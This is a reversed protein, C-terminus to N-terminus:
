RLEGETLRVVPLNFKRLLWADRAADSGERNRHWYSGDAEFALHYPHPLYADVRFHGFWVERQVEPFEGLIVEVLFDEIRTPSSACVWDTVGEAWRRRGHARNAEAIRQRGETTTPYWPHGRMRAKWEETHKRGTWSPPLSKVPKGVLAAAIKAKTEESLPGRSRNREALALKREPTWAAVLKARTEASMM